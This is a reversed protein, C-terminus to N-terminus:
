PSPALECPPVLEGPDFAATAAMTLAVVAAFAVAGPAASVSAVADRVLAVLIAVIFVDVMSWRGVLELVAHLRIFATGNHPGCGTRGALLMFGLGALKLVPVCVSALLVIAALALDGTGMLESVGGLITHAETVGFSTVYMIPLLNAPVYLVAAALLLAAPLSTDRRGARGAPSHTMGAQPAGSRAAVQRLRISLVVNVVVLFGAVLLGPGAEAYGLADLRTWAIILGLLLVDMMALRSLIRAWRFPPSLATGGNSPTLLGAVTLLPVLVPMVVTCILVCAALSWWNDMALFLPLDVPSAGREGSSGSLYLL